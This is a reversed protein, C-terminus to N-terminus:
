VPICAFATKVALGMLPAQESRYLIHGCGVRGFDSRACENDAVQVEIDPLL